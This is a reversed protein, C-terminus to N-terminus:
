IKQSELIANYEETRNVVGNQGDIVSYAIVGKQLIANLQNIANILEPDSTATAPKLAVNELRKYEGEARQPVRYYNIADLIAPNHMMIRETTANDVVIERGAESVLTPTNVMGTSTKRYPVRNYNRGDQAGVVDMYDPYNGSSAQMVAQRQQIIKGIQIGTSTVIGITAIAGAIPGLDALAKTVAVAGNSIGLSIDLLMVLDASKKAIAKKDEALKNEIESIANAKEQNIAEEEKSGKKVTKLRLKANDEIDKVEKNAAIEAKGYQLDLIGNATDSLVGFADAAIQAREEWIALEEILRQRNLEKEYDHIQDQIDKEVQLKQDATILLNDSAWQAYELDADKKKKFEDLLDEDTMLGLREKVNLVENDYEDKSDTFGYDFHQPTKRTLIDEPNTEEPIDYPKYKLNIGLEDASKQIEAQIEAIAKKIKEKENELSKETYKALEEQRLKEINELVDAYGTAQLKANDYIENIENTSLKTGHVLRDNFQTKLTDYLKKLEEQKKDVNTISGLQQNIIDVYTNNNKIYIDKAEEVDKNLNDLEKKLDNALSYQTRVSILSTALQNIESETTAGTYKRIEKKDLGQFQEYTFVGTSPYQRQFKEWEEKAKNMRNGYIVAKDMYDKQAEVWDTMKDQLMEKAVQQAIQKEWEKNSEKLIEVLEKMEDKETILRPLYEGYKDNIEAILNKRLELPVNSLKLIEIQANMENRDAMLKESLKVSTWQEFKDVVKGLWGVFSSNVFWAGIHKGIKELNAAMNENKKNFEELMSNGITIEDTAMKQQEKLMGINNTLTGIVSIARAGDIGLEDMKAAMQAMGENNGKIGELVKIFAANADGSLLRTFDETNMKAIKAFTATDKFMAMFTQGVATASLEQQQGLSDLTSALGAVSEYAINANPAIGALRASFEVIFSESAASASGLKNVVNGIKTMSVGFINSLKGIQNIADEGLDQGLAVEIKDAEEVFAKINASGTIGLKGATVALELLRQNSTRTDLSRLEGYLDKVQEMTLGTTKSVDAFSDSLKANGTILNKIGMVLGAVMGAAGMALLAFKNVGEALKGFSFRSANAKGTLEHLRGDVATLETRFRKWQESGPVSMNLLNRLKTQEARLQRISLGTLGLEKRLEGMRTENTEIATNNEKISASIRQYEEREQKGLAILKQKEQNLSKNVDLLDRTSRELDGLEKQAPNGNIIMNLRLDEDKLTNAM